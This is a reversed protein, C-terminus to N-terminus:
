AWHTIDLAENMSGTRYGMLDLTIYVFGLSRLRNVIKQRLTKKLFRKIEDKPVEIRAIEKHCRVRLQNFGLGKIFGEAEEIARLREKTIKQNYAFRSALCASSPKNWVELGMIKSFGRIDKKRLRAEQIPSKINEEGAAIRGYRMDKLDDFTSGDLVFHYGNKKAIKNLKQFLEKKCYYCRDVPNRKFNKNKLEDTKILRHPVSLRKATEIANRKESQPYSESLATVALVNDKGLVSKAMYLLFTSDIGGSYAVIVRKMGQLINKLRKLKREKIGEPRMLAKRM